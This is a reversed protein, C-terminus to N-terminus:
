EEAKRSKKWERFAAENEPNRYFERCRELMEAATTEYKPKEKAEARVITM